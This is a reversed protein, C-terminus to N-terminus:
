LQSRLLEKLRLGFDPPAIEETYDPIEKVKWWRFGRFSAREVEDAFNNNEPSFHRLSVYYYTEDQDYDIGAFRFRVNREWSKTMSFTEKYGTEEWVERELCAQHSEGEELAGGPTIWQEQGSDPNQFKM